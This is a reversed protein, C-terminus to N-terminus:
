PLAGLFAEEVREPPVAGLPLVSAALEAAVAARGDEVGLAALLPVPDWALPLACQFLAGERTRRQALGVVKRGGVTVEGPGLGAFCVMASWASAVLGGRHVVGGAGGALGL